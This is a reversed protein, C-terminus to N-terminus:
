RIAHDPFRAMLRALDDRALPATPPEGHIGRAAAALERPTARWLVDPPWRLVGLGFSLWRRWPM